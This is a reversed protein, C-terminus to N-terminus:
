VWAGENETDVSVARLNFMDLIAFPVDSVYSLGDYDHGGSCIRLQLVHIKCCIITAQVHSVHSPSQPIPTTSSMFRLNQIYSQLVYTYSSNTPTYFVDSIPPSPSSLHSLCQLFSDHVPDSVTLSFHLVLALLAPLIAFRSTGM